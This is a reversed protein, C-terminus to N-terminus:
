TSKKSGAMQMELCCENTAHAFQTGQRARDNVCLQMRSGLTVCKVKDNSAFQTRKIKYVLQEPVSLSDSPEKPPVVSDDSDNNDSNDDDSSDYLSRNGARCELLKHVAASYQVKGEDDLMTDFKRQADEDKDGSYYVEVVIMEDDSDNGDKDPKRKKSVDTPAGRRSAM